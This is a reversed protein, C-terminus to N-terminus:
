GRNHEHEARVSGREARTRRARFTAMYHAMSRDRTRTRRSSNDEGKRKANSREGGKCASATTRAKQTGEIALM